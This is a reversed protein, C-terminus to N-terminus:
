EDHEELVKIFDIPGCIIIENGTYRKGLDDDTTIFYDCGAEIACAIHIADKNKIRSEMIESAKTEVKGAKDHDVYLSAHNFFDAISFQRAEHPNDNNEFLSMYSCALTLKNETILRQIYLKAQTELFIRMQRQDDFPRNFSCNDLYVKIAPM